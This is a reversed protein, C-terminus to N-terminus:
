LSHSFFLPKKVPLLITAIFAELNGHETHPLLTPLFDMKLMLHLLHTCLLHGAIFFHEVLTSITHLFHEPKVSLVLTLLFTVSFPSKRSFTAFNEYRSSTRLELPPTYSAIIALILYLHFLSLSIALMSCLVTM